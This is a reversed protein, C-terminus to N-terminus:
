LGVGISAGAYTGRQGDQRQHDMNLRLSVRPSVQWDGFFGLQMSDASSRSSEYRVMGPAGGLSLDVGRRGSGFEHVWCVSAGIRSPRGSIQFEQALDVGAKALTAGASVSGVRVEAGQNPTESGGGAEYGARMVHLRPLVTMGYKTCRVPLNVGVQLVYEFDALKVRSVGGGVASLDRHVM